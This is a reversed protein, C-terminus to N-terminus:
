RIRGDRSVSISRIGDKKLLRKLVMDNTCVLAGIEKARRIIWADVRGNDKNININNKKILALAIGSSGKEKRKSGSMSRLEQLIGESIEVRTQPFEYGLVDFIDVTNEIGFLISSTDLLLVKM